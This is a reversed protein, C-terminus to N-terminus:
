EYFNIILILVFWLIFSLCCLYHKKEVLLLWIYVVILILFEMISFDASKSYKGYKVVIYVFTNTIARNFSLRALIFFKLYIASVFFWSWTWKVERWRGVVGLEGSHITFVQGRSPGSEDWCPGHPGLCLPICFFLPRAEAYYRASQPNDRKGAPHPGSPNLFNPSHWAEGIPEPRITVGAM